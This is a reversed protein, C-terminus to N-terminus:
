GDQNALKGLSTNIKGIAKQAIKVKSKFKSIANNQGDRVVARLEQHFYNLSAVYIIGADIYIGEVILDMMEATQPDNAIKTRLTDEYYVPKVIRYGTSSLAELTASIIDMREGSVTTPISIITFQDHLLTKYEKQAEDFKPIPVVGFGDAMNRMSENELELLRFTAMAAYGDAFVQRINAWDTDLHFSYMGSDTKHFLHILKDAVEVIRETDFVMEYENDANKGIIPIQCSSWYADINTSDTSIFGYVDGTPDQVGNGNDRHFLPILEIQKDLTWTGNEVLDYLMPQNADKFIQKNFVTVFGFRYMSLLMSGAAVYQSDRFSVTENLGQSWWPQELDLYQTSRLDAFVGELTKPLAIYCEAAMADYEATGAKVATTVKDVIGGNEEYSTIKVGLRKEVTMNREFVADNVPEGIVGSVAIEALTEPRKNGAITVETDHFYLDDPLKDRLGTDEETVVTDARTGSEDSPTDATACSIFSATLMLGALLLSLIRKAKM